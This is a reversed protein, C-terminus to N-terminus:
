EDISTRFVSLQRALYPGLMNEVDGEGLKTHSAVIGNPGGPRGNM